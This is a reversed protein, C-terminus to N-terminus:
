ALYESYPAAGSAKMVKKAEAVASVADVARATRNTAAHREGIARTNTPILIV